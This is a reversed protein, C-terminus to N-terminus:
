SARAWDVGHRPEGVGEWDSPTGGLWVTGGGDVGSGTGMTESLSRGGGKGLGGTGSPTGTVVLGGGDGGVVSWM